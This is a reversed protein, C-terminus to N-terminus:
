MNLKSVLQTEKLNNSLDAATSGRHQKNNTVPHKRHIVCRPLTVLKAVNEATKIELIVFQLHIVLEVAIIVNTRLGQQLGQSYSYTM